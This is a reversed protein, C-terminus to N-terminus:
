FITMDADIVTFAAAEGLIAKILYQPFRSWSRRMGAFREKDMVNPPSSVTVEILRSGLPDSSVKV